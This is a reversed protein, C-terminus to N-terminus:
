LSGVGILQVVVDGLLYRGANSCAYRAWAGIAGNGLDIQSRYSM